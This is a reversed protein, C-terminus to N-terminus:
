SCLRKQFAAEVSRCYPRFEKPDGAFLYRAWRDGNAVHPIEDAHLYDFLNAWMDLGRERLLRSRRIHRQAAGAEGLRNFLILRDLLSSRYIAMDYGHFVPFDGLSVNMDKLMEWQVRAHRVEDWVQRAMDAHFAIPMEPFEHINCAMLEAAVMEADVMHHLFHQRFGDELPFYFDDPGGYIARNDIGHDPGFTFCTPREFRDIPRVPSWQQTEGPCLEAKSIVGVAHIIKQLHASWEDFDAAAPLGRAVETSHERHRTRGANLICITPEDLLRSSEAIYADYAAYIAPLFAHYIGCVQHIPSPGQDIENLAAEFPAGPRGPYEAHERLESLRRSFDVLNQSIGYIHRGISVKLDFDAIRPLVGSLSHLLQREAHFCNSLQRASEGVTLGASSRVQDLASM